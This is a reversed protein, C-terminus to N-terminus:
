LAGKCKLVEELEKLDEMTIPPEDFLANGIVFFRGLIVIILATLGLPYFVDGGQYYDSFSMLIFFLALFNAAIELEITKM